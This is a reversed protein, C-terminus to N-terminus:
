SVCNFLLKILLMPLLCQFFLLRLALSAARRPSITPLIVTLMVRRTKLGYGNVPDFKVIGGGMGLGEVTAMMLMCACQRAFRYIRRGMLAVHVVRRTEKATQARAGIGLQAVFIARVGALVALILELCNKGKKKPKEISEGEYCTFRM